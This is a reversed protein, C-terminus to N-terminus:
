APQQQKLVAALVRRADDRAFPRHEVHVLALAVHAVHEPGAVHAVQAAVHPDRVTAIWRSSGSSGARFRLREIDIRREADYKSVVAVQGICFRQLTVHIHLVQAMDVGIGIRFDSWHGRGHIPPPLSPAVM